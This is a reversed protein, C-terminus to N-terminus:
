NSGVVGDSSADFFREMEGVMREAVNTDYLDPRDGSPNFADIKEALKPDAVDMLQNWGADVTEVWETEPRLTICPKGAIYAEKQLGGSDTIVKEAYKILGQFEIYGQPKILEVNEPIVIQHTEVINRTRPHIPFVIDQNLKALGAFLKKLREPDDVNYPRHMTLLYYDRGSYQNDTIKDQVFQVSDAMIDGTLITKDALGENSLHNVAVGTPAFLLDATHDAVIRNIEEPMSRNFSRLGAEIHLSLVELKAAALCAALTSNTDGFSLVM